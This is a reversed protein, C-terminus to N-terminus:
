KGWVEGARMEGAGGSDQRDERGPHHQCLHSTHTVRVILGPTCAECCRGGAGGGPGLGPDPQGRELQWSRGPPFPALSGSKSGLSGPSQSSDQTEPAPTKGSFLCTIAGVQRRLFPSSFCRPPVDSLSVGRKAPAPAPAPFAWPLGLRPQPSARPAVTHTCTLRSNACRAPSVATTWSAGLRLDHRSGPRPGEQSIAGPLPIAPPTQPVGTPFGGWESSGVNGVETGGERGGTNGEVRRTGGLPRQVWHRQRLLIRGERQTLPFARLEHGPPRGGLRGELAAPLSATRGHGLGCM